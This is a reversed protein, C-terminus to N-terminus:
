GSWSPRGSSVRVAGVWFEPADVPRSRRNQYRRLEDLPLDPLSM